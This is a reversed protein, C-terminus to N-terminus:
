IHLLYCLPFMPFRATSCEDDAFWSRMERPSFESVFPYIFSLPIRVRPSHSHPPLPDPPPSLSLSLSCPRFCWLFNLRGRDISPIPTFPQYPPKIIRGGCWWSERANKVKACHGRRGTLGSKWEDTPLCAPLPRLARESVCVRARPLHHNISPRPRAHRQQGRKTRM